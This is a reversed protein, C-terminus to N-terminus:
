DTPRGETTGWRGELFEAVLPTLDRPLPPGLKLEFGHRAGPIVVLGRAVGAAELREHMRRAQDVPVWADDEGHILLMAPGGPTVHDIPSASAAIEPAQIPDVGLLDRVPEHNLRRGAALDTLSSPTSLGVAAAVRRDEQAARLALLGGSSTGIMAVRAPDIRFQDARDSLWDVAARVDQLAGDWSPAGPRALRYDIVAVALGRRALDAFQPAYDRRSGGTWGGGHIAVVLPRPADSAEDPLLLDLMLPRGDMTSYAVDRVVELRAFPGEAPRRSAWVAATAALIALWGIARIIAM